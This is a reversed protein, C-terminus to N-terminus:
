RGRHRRSGTGSTWRSPLGATDDAAVTEYPFGFGTRAPVYDYGLRLYLEAMERCRQESDASFPAERIAAMVPEDIFLEIFPVRDPVGRALATQLREFDPSPEINPYPM